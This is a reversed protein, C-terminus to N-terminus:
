EGHPFGGCALKAMYSTNVKYNVGDEMEEATGILEWLLYKAITKSLRPQWSLISYGAWSVCCFHPSQKKSKECNQLRSTWSGPELTALNWQPNGKYKASKVMGREQKTTVHPTLSPFLFLFHIFGMVFAWRWQSWEFRIIEQHGWKWFIMGNSTLAGAYSDPPNLKM